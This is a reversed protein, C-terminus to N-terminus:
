GAPGWQWGNGTLTGIVKARVGYWLVVSTMGIDAVARGDVYVAYSSVSVGPLVPASWGYWFDYRSSSELHSGERAAAERLEARDNTAAPLPEFNILRDLQVTTERAIARRAAWGGPWWTLLYGSAILAVIRFWRKRLM